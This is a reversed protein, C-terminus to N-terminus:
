IPQKSVYTFHIHNDQPQLEDSAEEDTPPDDDDNMEEDVSKQKRRRKCWGIASDKDTILFISFTVPISQVLNVETM